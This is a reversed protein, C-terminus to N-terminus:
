ANLEQNSFVIVFVNPFCIQKVITHPQASIKGLWTVPNMTKCHSYAFKRVERNRNTARVLWQTKDSGIWVILVFPEGYQSSLLFAVDGTWLQSIHRATLIDRSSTCFIAPTVVDRAVLPPLLFSRFILPWRRFLNLLEYLSM